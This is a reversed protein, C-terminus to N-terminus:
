GSQPAAAYDHDPLEDEVHRVWPLFYGSLSVATGLICTCLFLLAMGAGPGTGVIGGWGAALLGDGAITPEFVQDALPGAILYGLPITATQFM